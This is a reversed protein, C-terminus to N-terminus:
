AVNERRLAGHDNAVALDAVGVGAPEVCACSRGAVEFVFDSVVFPLEEPVSACAYVFPFVRIVRSPVVGNLGGACM